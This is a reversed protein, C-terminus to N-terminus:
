AELKELEDLEEVKPHDLALLSIRGGNNEDSEPVMMDFLNM